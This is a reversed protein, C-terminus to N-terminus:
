EPNLMSYAKDYEGNERALWLFKVREVLIEGNPANNQGLLDMVEEIYADLPMANPDTLQESGHLATQVYPPALELVGVSSNRLQHRLSQLWSHLFAKSACYTPFNSRPVAALGSTTGIITSASQEKLHPLFASVIDLVGLINTNIVSRAISVDLNEGIEEERIIGANVILVNLDPYEDLVRQELEKISDIDQVDLEISTMGPYTGTIKNLLSQRRGTIIVQNERKYFQEALVRGIGSTGGTILITNGSMKM